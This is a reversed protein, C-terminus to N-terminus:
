KKRLYRVISLDQLNPEYALDDKTAWAHKQWYLPILNGRVEHLVLKTAKALLHNRREEDFEELAQQLITDFEPNSFLTRNSAGNGLKPNPTALINKLFESANPGSGNYAYQFLSFRQESAQKLLVSFPMSQVGNIKIGGRSFMQGLVQLVASDEPFRDNTSHITLGFGKPYGADILLQKARALDYRDPKLSPDYGGLGEPVIQGAPVGQGGAIREVLLDRNIMLSLAERVKPDKLPNKEMPTGSPDTV